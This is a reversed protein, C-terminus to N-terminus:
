DENVSAISAFAEEGISRCPLGCPDELKGVIHMATRYKAVRWSASPHRDRRTSTASPRHARLAQIWAM